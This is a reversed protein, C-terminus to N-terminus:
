YSRDNSSSSNYRSQQKSSRSYRTQQKQLSSNNNSGNNNNSSNNNSSNCHCSVPTMIRITAVVTSSNSNSANSYCFTIRGDEEVYTPM